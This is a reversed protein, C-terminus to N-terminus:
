DAKVVEAPNKNAAKWVMYVISFVIVAFVMLFIAVYLWADMSTQKVYGELWRKMILYGAPFATLAALALLILYEKFFINM